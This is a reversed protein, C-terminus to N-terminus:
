QFHQILEYCDFYLFRPKFRNGRFFSFCYRQKPSLINLLQGNAQFKFSTYKGEGFYAHFSFHFITFWTRLKKDCSRKKAAIIGCKLQMITYETFCYIERVRICHAQEEAFQEYIAFYFLLKSVLPIPPDNKLVSTM